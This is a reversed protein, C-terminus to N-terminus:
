TEKLYRSFKSEDGFNNLIIEIKKLNNEILIMSGSLEKLGNMGTAALVTLVKKKHYQVLFLLSQFVNSPCNNTLFRIM